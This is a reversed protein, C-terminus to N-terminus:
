YVLRIDGVHLHDGLQEKLIKELFLGRRYCQEILGDEKIVKLIELTARCGVAHSQYSFVHIDSPSSLDEWQWAHM